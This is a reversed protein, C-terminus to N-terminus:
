LIHTMAYSEYTIKVVVKANMLMTVYMEMVKMDMKVPASLLAM